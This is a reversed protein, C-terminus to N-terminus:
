GCMYHQSCLGLWHRSVPKPGNQISCSRSFQQQQAASARSCTPVYSDVCHRFTTVVSSYTEQAQSRITSAHSPQNPGQTNIQFTLKAGWFSPLLHGPTSAPCATTLPQRKGVSQTLRTNLVACTGLLVQLSQTPEHSKLSAGTRRLSLTPAPPSSETHLGMAVPGLLYTLLRM